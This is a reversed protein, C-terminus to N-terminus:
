GVYVGSTQSTTYTGDELSHVAYTRYYYGPTVDYSQSLSVYTGSETKSKTSLTNWTGNYYAQLRLTIKLKPDSTPTSSYGSMRVSSSSLKTITCGGTVTSRSQESFGESYYPDESIESKPPTLGAIRDAIETTKDVAFACVTFSFFSSAIMMVSLIIRSVRNKKM